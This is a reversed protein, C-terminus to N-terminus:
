TGSLNEGFRTRAALPGNVFAAQAVGAITTLNGIRSKLFINSSQRTIRKSGKVVVTSTTDDGIEITEGLLFTQSAKNGLKVKDGQLVLENSAELVINKGYIRVWGNEATMCMDGNHAMALYSISESKNKFGTQIELTGDAEITALGSGHLAQQYKLKKDTVAYLQYVVPGAVGVPGNTEILFNPGFVDLVRSESKSAM